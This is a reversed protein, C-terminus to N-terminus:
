SFGCKAAGPPASHFHFHGLWGETTLIFSKENIFFSYIYKAGTYVKLSPNANKKLAGLCSGQRYDAGPYRLLGFVTIKTLLNFRSFNQGFAVDKKHM